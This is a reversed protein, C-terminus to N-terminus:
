VKFRDFTGWITSWLLSVSISTRVYRVHQWSLTQLLGDWCTIPTHFHIVFYGSFPFCFSFVWGKTPPIPSPPMSRTVGSGGDWFFNITVYRCLFSPVFFGILFFLRQFLSFLSLIPLVSCVAKCGANSYVCFISFKRRSIM